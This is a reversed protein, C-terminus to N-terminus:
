SRLTECRGTDFAEPGGYMECARAMAVQSAVDEYFRQQVKSLKDLWSEIDERDPIFTHMEILLRQLLAQFFVEVQPVDLGAASPLDSM